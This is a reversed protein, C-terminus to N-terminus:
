ARVGDEDGFAPTTGVAFMTRTKESLSIQAYNAVLNDYPRTFTLTAVGNVISCTAGEVSTLAPIDDM